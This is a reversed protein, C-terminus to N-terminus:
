DTRLGQAGCLLAVLTLLAVTGGPVRGAELGLGTGVALVAIGPLRQRLWSERPPSPVQSRM